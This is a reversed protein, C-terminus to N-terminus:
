SGAAPQPVPGPVVRVPVEGVRDQVEEGWSVPISEAERGSAADGVTVVIWRASADRSCTALTLGDERGIDWSTFARECAQDLEAASYTVAAAADIRALAQRLEPRSHGCSDVSQSLSWTGDSTVVYIDRFLEAEFTCSHPSAVEAPSPEQLADALQAFQDPEDRSVTTPEISRFYTDLIPVPCVDYALIEGTVDYPRSGDGVSTPRGTPCDVAAVTYGYLGTPPHSAHATQQPTTSGSTPTPDVPTPATGPLTSLVLGGVVALAGLSVGLTAAVRLRHRRRGGALVADLDIRDPAPRATLSAFLEKVDTENV